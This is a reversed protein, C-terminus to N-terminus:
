HHVLTGHHQEDTVRLIPRAVFAMYVASLGVLGYVITALITDPGGFLAAVADFDFLAFLGWNLGGLILLTLATMNLIRM